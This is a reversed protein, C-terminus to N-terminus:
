GSGEKRDNPSEVHQHGAGLEVVRDGYHRRPSPPAPVGFGARAEHATEAFPYRHDHGVPELDVQVAGEHGAREADADVQVPQEGGGDGQRDAVAAQRPQRGLLGEEVGAVV